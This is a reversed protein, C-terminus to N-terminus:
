VPNQFCEFENSLNLVQPSQGSMPGMSRATPLLPQFSGATLCCSQPQGAEAQSGTGTGLTELQAECVHVNTDEVQQDSCLSQPLHIYGRPSGGGWRDDNPSLRM